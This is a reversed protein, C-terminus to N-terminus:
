IAKIKLNDEAKEVDVNFELKDQPDYGFREIAINHLNLVTIQQLMQDLQQTAITRYNLLTDMEYKTLTFTKEASKEDKLAKNKLKGM